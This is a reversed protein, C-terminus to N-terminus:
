RSRRYSRGHSSHRHGFDEGGWEPYGDGAFERRIAAREESDLSVDHSMPPTMGGIKPLKLFRALTQRMRIALKHAAM